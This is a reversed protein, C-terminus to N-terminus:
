RRRQISKRRVTQKTQSAQSENNNTVHMIREPVSFEIGEDSFKKYIQERLETEIFMRKRFDAVRCVLRLQIGLESLNLVFVHPKPEKQVEPHKAALSVLIEKARQLDTGYAVNMEILLRSGLNPLSVNLIRNNVMESNPIVILNSDDNVIRTSRLGIHTVTGEEGTPLKIRHGIRFPQEILIVFGAIMNSITHQAALAIALSGVGLSVLLSGINVGFHDLAIMSAVMFLIINIIRMMLPAVTPTIDSKTKESISEMYWEISSKIIRSVATSVVLVLVLYVGMSAYDLIQQYTVNAASLPKRIERIGLAFGVVFSLPVVNSEIVTFIRRQLQSNVIDGFKKVFYKLIKGLFGSVVILVVAIILHNM